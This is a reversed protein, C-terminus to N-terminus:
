TQTSLMQDAEKELDTYEFANIELSTFGLGHKICEQAVKIV